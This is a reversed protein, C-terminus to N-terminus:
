REKLMKVLRDPLVGVAILQPGGVFNAQPHHLHRVARHQLCQHILRFLLLHAVQERKPPQPRVWHPHRTMHQHAALMWVTLFLRRLCHLRSLLTM